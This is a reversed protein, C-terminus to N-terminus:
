ESANMVQNVNQVSTQEFTVDLMKEWSVLKNADNTGVVTIVTGHTNARGTRGAIHTYEDPGVPCGAVLVLSVDLDMGRVADEAAVLVAGKKKIGNEAYETLSLAPCDFHKLAGIANQETLGFHRTLVILANRSQNPWSLTQLLQYMTTLIKGPQITHEDKPPDIPLVCHRLTLPLSVTRTTTSTDLAETAPRLIAPCESPTLGMTRCLERRLPRGVTASVAVVVVRGLTLRHVAANLIAAPREHVKNKRNTTGLLLRDVEDLVLYKTNKLLAMALPKPTPAVPLSKQNDGYLSQQLSKASGVYIRVQRSRLNQPHTVHLVPQNTLQLLIQYIQTSLERTPTVIMAVCDGDQENRMLQLVPLLYALSKGSGTAAHLICSQSPPSINQQFHRFSATQIPTPADFQRVFRGATPGVPLGAFQTPIDDDDDFPEEDDENVIKKYQELPKLDDGYLTDLDHQVLRNALDPKRGRTRLGREKLLLKLSNAPRQLYEQYRSQREEHLPDLLSSPAPAQKNGHLKELHQATRQMLDKSSSETSQFLTLLTADKNTKQVVFGDVSISCYLCFLLFPSLRRSM